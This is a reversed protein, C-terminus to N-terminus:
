VKSEFLYVDFISNGKIRKINKLVQGSVSDMVKFVGLNVGKENLVKVTNGPQGLAGLIAIYNNGYISKLFSMRINAIDKMNNVYPNDLPKNLDIKTDTTKARITVFKREEEQLTIDEKNQIEQAKLLAQQNKRIENFDAKAIIGGRMGKDDMNYGSPPLRYFSGTFTLSLVRDLRFMRWIKNIHRNSSVSWGNLHYGRILIKGQTSKGVVMPYIVREHGAFHKDEEGKYNILFVMGYKIAKIILEITPKVPENIPVDAIQKANKLSFRPVYSNDEKLEYKERIVFEVPKTNFYSKVERANM